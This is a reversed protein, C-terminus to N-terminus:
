KDASAESQWLVGGTVNKMRFACSARGQAPGDSVHVGNTGFRCKQRLAVSGWTQTSLVSADTLEVAVYLHRRAPVKHSPSVFVWGTVGM